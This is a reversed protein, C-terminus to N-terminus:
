ELPLRPCSLQNVTAMDLLSSRLGLFRTEEPSLSKSIEQVWGLCTETSIRRPDWVPCTMEWVAVDLWGNSIFCM